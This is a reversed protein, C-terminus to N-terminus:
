QHYRGARGGQRPEGLADRGSGIVVVLPKHEREGQEKAQRYNSQWAPALSAPTPVLAAVLAVGLISANM